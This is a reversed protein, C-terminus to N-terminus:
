AIITAADDNDEKNDAQIYGIGWIINLPKLM